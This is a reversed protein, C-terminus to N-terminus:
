DMKKKEVYSTFVYLQNMNIQSPNTTCSYFKQDQTACAFPPSAIAGCGKLGSSFAVQLQIAVAGGSEFGSVTITSADINLKPLRDPHPPFHLECITVHVFISLL